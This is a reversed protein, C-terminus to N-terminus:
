KGDCPNLCPCTPCFARMGRCTNEGVIYGGNVWNDIRITPTLSNETISVTYRKTYYCADGVIIVKHVGIPLKYGTIPLQGIEVKDVKVKYGNFKPNTNLVTLNGNIPNLRKKIVTIGTDRIDVSLTEAVFGHSKVILRKIGSTTEFKQGKVPSFDEDDISVEANLPELDFEIYPKGKVLQQQATENSCPTVLTKGEFSNVKKKELQVSIIKFGNKPSSMGYFIWLPKNISKGKEDKEGKMITLKRDVKVMMIYMGTFEDQYLESVEISTPEITVFEQANYLGALKKAYDLMKLKDVNIRENDNEIVVNESTFYQRMGDIFYDKDEYSTENDIISSLSQFYNKTIETIKEKNSSILSSTMLCQQASASLCM